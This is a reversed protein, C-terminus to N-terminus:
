IYDLGDPEISSGAEDKGRAVLVHANEMVHRAVLNGDIIDLRFQPVLDGASLRELLPELNLEFFGLRTDLEKVNLQRTLYILDRGPLRLLPIFTKPYM